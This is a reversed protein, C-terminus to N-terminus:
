HSHISPKRGLTTAGDPSERQFIEYSLNCQFRVFSGQGVRRGHTNESSSNLRSKQDSPRETTLSYYSEVGSWTPAAVYGSDVRAFTSAWNPSVQSGIGHPYIWHHLGRSWPRPRSAGRPCFCLDQDQDQDQFRSDRDQDQDQSLLKPRSRPRSLFTKLM